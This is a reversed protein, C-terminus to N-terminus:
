EAPTFLETYEPPLRQVEGVVGVIGPEVYNIYEWVLNGESDVEFGRGSM